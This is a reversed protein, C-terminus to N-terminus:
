LRMDSVSKIRLHDNWSSNVHFGEGSNSVESKESRVSRKGTEPFM